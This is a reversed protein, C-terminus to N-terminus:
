PTTVIGLQERAAAVGVLEIDDRRISTWHQRTMRFGHIEAVADRRVVRRRGEFEYGLSRTVGLSAHNDAFAGTTAVEAGFGDFALHLLAERLEKGLGRGQYALGLWSGTEASRLVDFDDANLGCGGIVQEETLVAFNLKWSEPQTDARCRWWYQFAGRQLYPPEADTWPTLFPMTAPDHVGRAAVDALAVGLEDDVYRLTVRPTRVELDFLPWHPNRM